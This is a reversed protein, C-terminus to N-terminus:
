CVSVCTIQSAMANMIVDSYHLVANSGMSVAFLKRRAASVSFYTTGNSNPSEMHVLLGKACSHTCSASPLTVYLVLIHGCVFSQSDRRLAWDALCKRQPRWALWFQPHSRTPHVECHVWYHMLLLWWLYCEHSTALPGINWPFNSKHPILQFLKQWNKNLTHHWNEVM